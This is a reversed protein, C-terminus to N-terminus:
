QKAYGDISGDNIYNQLYYKIIVMITEIFSKLSMKGDVPMNNYSDGTKRNNSMYHLGNQETKDTKITAHMGFM